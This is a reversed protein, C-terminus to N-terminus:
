DRAPRAGGGDGVRQGGHGGGPRVPGGQVLLFREGLELALGARLEIRRDDLQERRVESVTPSGSLRCGSDESGHASQGRLETSLAASKSDAPPPEVAGPAM